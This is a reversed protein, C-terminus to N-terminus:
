FEVAVHEKFFDKIEKNHLYAAPVLIRTKLEALDNKEVILIDIDCKELALKQNYKKFLHSIFRM